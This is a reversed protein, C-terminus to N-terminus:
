HSHFEMEVILNHLNPVVPSKDPIEAHHLRLASQNIRSVKHFFQVDRRPLQSHGKRLAACFERLFHAISLQIRQAMNTLKIRNMASAAHFTLTRPHRKMRRMEKATAATVAIIRVTDPVPM